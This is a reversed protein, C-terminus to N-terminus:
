LGMNRLILYAGTVLAAGVGMFLYGDIQGDSQDRIEARAIDAIAVVVEDGLNGARSIGLKEDTLWRVKGSVTQGSDLLLRVTDGEIISARDEEVGMVDTHAPRYTACGSALAMLTSLLVLGGPRRAVRM